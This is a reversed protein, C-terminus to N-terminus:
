AEDSLTARKVRGCYVTFLTVSPSGEPGTVNCVQHGWKSYTIQGIKKVSDQLEKWESLSVCLCQQVLSDSVYVHGCGSGDEM